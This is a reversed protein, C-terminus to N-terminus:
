LTVTIPLKAAFLKQEVASRKAAHCNRRSGTKGCVTKVCVTEGCSLKVALWNQRLCNRWRYKQRSCNLKSWGGEGVGRFLNKRRKLHNSCSFFQKKYCFKKKSEPFKQFFFLFSDFTLLSGWLTLFTLISGRRTRYITYFLSWNTFETFQVYFGTWGKIKELGCFNRGQM